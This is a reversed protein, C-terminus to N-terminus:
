PRAGEGVVGAPLTSSRQTAPGRPWRPDRFMRPNWAQFQLKQQDNLIALTATNLGDVYKQFDSEVGAKKTKFDATIKDASAQQETTMLNRIAQDREKDYERNQAIAKESQNHLDGWIADMKLKQDATLHL